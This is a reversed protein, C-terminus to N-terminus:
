LPFLLSRSFVPLLQKSGPPCYCDALVTTIPSEGWTRQSEEWIRYVTVKSLDNAARRLTVRSGCYWWQFARPVCPQITRQTLWNLICCTPGAATFLITRCNRCSRANEILCVWVRICPSVARSQSPDLSISPALPPSQDQSGRRHLPPRPPQRPTPHATGSFDLLDQETPLM